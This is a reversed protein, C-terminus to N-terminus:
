RPGSPGGNAQGNSTEEFTGTVKQHGGNEEYADEFYLNLPELVATDTTSFLVVEETSSGNVHEHWAYPPLAFFDGQEWELRLGDVITAGHGRFVHYVQSSSHRHPKTNIGPRPM